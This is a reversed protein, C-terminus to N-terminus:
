SGGCAAALLRKLIEPGELFEDDRLDAWPGHVGNQNEGRLLKRMKEFSLRDVRPNVFGFTRPATEPEKFSFVKKSEQRTGALWKHPENEPDCDSLRKQHKKTKACKQPPNHVQGCAVCTKREDRGVVQNFTSNNPSQRALYRGKVCWFYELSAWAFDGHSLKRWKPLSVYRRLDDEQFRCGTSSTVLKVLGFDQHHQESQRSAEETPKYVTKGGIAGYDAILRLTLCLLAWEEPRVPRLESFRLTFQEDKRIQSVKVGSGDLVEFRFKRAWDTCGFLECVVCRHGPDGPNKRADQPCRNRPESPDCAKGGLGRVLVEFWWRISGLLGTTIVRNPKGEADGTWLDTLAKFKWDQQNM